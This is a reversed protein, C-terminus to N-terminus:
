LYRWKKPLLKDLVFQVWVLSTILNNTIVTRTNHVYV